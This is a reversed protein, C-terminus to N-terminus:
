QGISRVTPLTSSPTASAARWAAAQVPKKANFGISSGNGHSAPEGDVPSTIALVAKDNLHFCRDLEAVV